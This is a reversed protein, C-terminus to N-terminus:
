KIRFEWYNISPKRYKEIDISKLEPISSYNISGKRPKLSANLIEGNETPIIVHNHPFVEQLEKKLLEKKETSEDIIKQLYAYETAKKKILNDNIYIWDKDTPEPPKFDILSIKFEKEKCILNEIFKNDREVKIPNGTGEFFPVFYGYKHGSVFLIHQIQAYYYDPIKECLNNFREKSVPCKIEVFFDECVGDISAAAEEWILSQFVKPLLKQKFYSECWSRAFPETKKGHEMAQNVDSSKQNQKKHWLSLASEWPDVGLIKPADTSTIKLFRYEIWEPSGQELNVEIFSKEM